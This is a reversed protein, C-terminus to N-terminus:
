CGDRCNRSHNRQIINVDAQEPAAVLAGIQMESLSAECILNNKAKM